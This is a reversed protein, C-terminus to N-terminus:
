NRFLKSIKEAQLLDKFHNINFFPDFPEIPFEVVSLNQGETWNDIKRINDQTIALRLPESLKIQWIACVPHTRGGSAACVINTDESVVANLMKDVCDLPVFPADAAFTAIWKYEPFCEKAWEMGTLIGALPGAYGPIIDPIIDYPYDSFKSSDSNSNIILADVQTVIREIVRSLLTEGDLKQFFKDGVGFRRSKGGALIIGLVRKQDYNTM